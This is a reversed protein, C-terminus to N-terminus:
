SDELSRALFILSMRIVPFVQGAAHHTQNVCQMAAVVLHCAFDHQFREPLLWLRNDPDACSCDCALRKKWVQKGTESDM